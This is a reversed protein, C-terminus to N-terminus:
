QCVKIATSCLSHSVFGFIARTLFTEAQHIIVLTVSTSYYYYFFVVFHWEHQPTKQQSFARYHLHSIM